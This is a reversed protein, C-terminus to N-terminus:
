GVKVFEVRRNSPDRPTTGARPQDFGYGEASLRSRDVGLSVLYDVVSQARRRSLDLNYARAGVADTHGAVDFRMGALAPSAMATAFAQAEQKGDATLDASGLPFNVRMDIRGAAPRVTARRPTASATRRAPARSPASSAAQPVPTAAGGPRILSFSKEQGIPIRQDSPVAGADCSGSIACVIQDPSTHAQQASAAGGALVGMLTVLVLKRM